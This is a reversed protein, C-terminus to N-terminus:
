SAPIRNKELSEVAHAVRAPLVDGSNSILDLIETLRGADGTGSSEAIAFQGQLVQVTPYAEFISDGRTARCIAIAPAHLLGALHIMGSDNGVICAAGLMLGAIAEAAPRILKEGAFPSCREANTDLILVRYGRKILRQEVDLWKAVPYSRNEFQAFPAVVISGASGKGLERIREPERLHVRGPGAAGINRCYRGIRSFPKWDVMAEVEAQYGENLQVDANTPSVQGYNDWENLDLSDCGDFLEVFPRAALSIRYEIHLGPRDRKLGAVALLGLLADGIGGAGM